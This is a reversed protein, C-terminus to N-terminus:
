YTLDDALDRVDILRRVGLAPGVGFILVGVGLLAGFLDQWLVGYVFSAIAVLYYPIAILFFSTASISFAAFGVAAALIMWAYAFWPNSITATYAHHMILIKLATTLMLAASLSVFLALASRLPNRGAGKKMRVILFLAAVAEITYVIALINMLTM